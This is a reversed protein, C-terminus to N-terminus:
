KLKSFNFKEIPAYSNFIGNENVDVFYISKTGNYNNHISVSKNLYKTNLLQILAAVSNCEIDNGFNKVIINM